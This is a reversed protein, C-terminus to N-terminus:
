AGHVSRLCLKASTWIGKFVTVPHALGGVQFHMIPLALGGLQFHTVPLALGKVQFHMIHLALGGMQFPMVPLALGGVQVHMVPWPLCSLCPDCRGLSADADAAWCGCAYMAAEGVRGPVKMAIGGSSVGAGVHGVYVIITTNYLVCLQGVRDIHSHTLLDRHSHIM